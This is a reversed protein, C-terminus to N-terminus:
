DTRGLIDQIFSENCRLANPRRSGDPMPGSGTRTLRFDTCDVFGFVRFTDRRIEYVEDPQLTDDIMLEEPSPALAIRHRIVDRCDDILDIWMELSRGSIKNYFTTFVHRIFWNFMASYERPDGGFFEYLNLNSLGSAIKTLSFIFVEEGSFIRRGGGVQPRVINPIRLHIFLQSLQNKNFRTWTRATQESLDNISRNTPPNFHVHDRDHEHINLINDLEEDTLQLGVLQHMIITMQILLAVKLRGVTESEVNGNNNNNHTRYIQLLKLFIIFMFMVSLEVSQRNSEQSMLLQSVYAQDLQNLADHRHMWNTRRVSRREGVVNPVHHYSDNSSRSSVEDDEEM